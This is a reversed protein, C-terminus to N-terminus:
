TNVSFRNWNNKNIESYLCLVELIIGPFFSTVLCCNNLVSVEPNNEVGKGIGGEDVVLRTRETIGKSM